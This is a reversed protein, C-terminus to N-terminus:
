GQEPDPSWHLMQLIGVMRGWAIAFAFSTSLQVTWNARSRRCAPLCLCLSQYHLSRPSNKLLAASFGGKDQYDGVTVRLITTAM